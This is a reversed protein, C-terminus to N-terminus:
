DEEPQEDKALLGQKVGNAHATSIAEAIANEIASWNPGKPDHCMMTLRRAVRADDVTAQPRATDPTKNM